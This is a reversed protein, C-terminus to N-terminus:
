TCIDSNATCVVHIFRAGNVNKVVYIDEEVYFYCFIVMLINIYSDFIDNRSYYYYCCKCNNIILYKDAQYAFDNIKDLRGPM